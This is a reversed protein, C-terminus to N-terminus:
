EDLLRSHKSLIERQIALIKVNLLSNCTKNMNLFQVEVYNLDLNLGANFPLWSPWSRVEIPFRHNDIALLITTIEGPEFPHDSKYCFRAGGLSIDLLNVREEQVYLSLSLDNLKPKLRYHMRLDYQQFGTRMRLRIAPATNSLFLNYDKIIEVVKGEFGYRVADTKEGIVYTVSVAKGIHRGSTIPPTTQSLIVEEGRIDYIVASRVDTAERQVDVTFVINVQLGPKAAINKKM